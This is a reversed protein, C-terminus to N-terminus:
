FQDVPGILSICHLFLWLLLTYIRRPNLMFLRIDYLGLQNPLGALFTPADDSILSNTCVADMIKVRRM